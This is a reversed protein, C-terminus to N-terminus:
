RGSVFGCLPGSGDRGAAASVSSAGQAAAGPPTRAKGNGHASSRGNAGDFQATEGDLKAMDAASWVAQDLAALLSAWAFVEDDLGSRPIDDVQIPM